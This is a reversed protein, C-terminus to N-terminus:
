VAAGGARKEEVADILRFRETVTKCGGTRLNYVIEM